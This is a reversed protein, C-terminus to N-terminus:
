QQKSGKSTAVSIALVQRAATVPTAPTSATSLQLLAAISVILGHIM